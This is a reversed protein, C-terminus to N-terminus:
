FSRSLIPIGVRTAGSTSDRVPDQWVPERLWTTDPREPPKPLPIEQTAHSEINNSVLVIGGVIGAIGVLAILGGTVELAVGLTPDSGFTGAVDGIIAVLLGGPIAAVGLVILVIGGGYNADLATRATIAVSQGSSAELHFRRSSRIDRGALRYEHHPPTAQRVAGRM